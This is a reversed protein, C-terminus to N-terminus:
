DLFFFFLRCLSEKSKKDLESAVAAVSVEQHTAM